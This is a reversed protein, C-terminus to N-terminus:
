VRACLRIVVHELMESGAQGTKMQYDADALELMSQKLTEEKFGSAARGLKEAIFPNLELPKALAKGRIGKAQLVAAQWLQRVHRTLLALIVTFYTGDELQRRLLMLAKRGDRESIADMLAFVSVEPLGAFVRVLDRRTIQREATFLALKDFEQDLFELSIQQMMGVAGHFYLYADRDMTRHMARLKDQLWEQINWAKVAEAELVMGSAEVAKYIRRRKDPKDPSVFVVYSFPPMDNLVEILRETKKDKGAPKKEASDGHRARFLAANRVLLVNKEAFFPMTELLGVLDDPDIDGPLIQVADKPDKQEPFLRRLIEKWARDIYYHEEGALLFVHRVEERGLRTM